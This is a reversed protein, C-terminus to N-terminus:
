INMAFIRITESAQLSKQSNKRWLLKMMAVPWGGHLVVRGELQRYLVALYPCYTFHGVANEQATTQASAKTLLMMAGMLVLLIKRNM